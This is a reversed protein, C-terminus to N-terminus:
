HWVIAKPRYIYYEGQQVVALGFMSVMQGLVSRVDPQVQLPGM